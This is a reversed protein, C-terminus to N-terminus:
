YKHRERIFLTFVANKKFSSLIKLSLRICRRQPIDSPAKLLIRVRVTACTMMVLLM